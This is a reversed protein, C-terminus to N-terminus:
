PDNSGSKLPQKESLQQESKVPSLAAQLAKEQMAQLKRYNYRRAPLSPPSPAPLSSLSLTFPPSRPVPKTAPDPTEPVAGVCAGRMSRGAACCCWGFAADPM